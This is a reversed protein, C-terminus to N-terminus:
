KRESVAFRIDDAPALLFNFQTRLRGGEEGLLAVDFRSFIKALMTQVVM